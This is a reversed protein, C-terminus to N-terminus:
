KVIIITIKEKTYENFKELAKNFCGYFLAIAFVTITLYYFGIFAKSFLNKLHKM